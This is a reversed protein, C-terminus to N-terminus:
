GCVVLFQVALSDKDGSGFAPSSFQCPRSCVGQRCRGVEYASFSSVPPCPLNNPDVASLLRIYSIAGGKGVDKM